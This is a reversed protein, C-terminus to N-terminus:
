WVENQKVSDGMTATASWADSSLARAEGLRREEPLNSLAYIMTRKGKVKWQGRDATPHLAPTYGCDKLRYVLEGKPYRGEAMMSYFDRDTARKDETEVFRSAYEKLMNITIAKPRVPAGNGMDGAIADLLDEMKDVDPNLGGVIMQRTGENMPPPAKADFGCLDRDRLFAAVHRFGDASLWDHLHKFYNPPISKDNSPVKSTAVFYRRSGENVYLGNDPYNTTICVFIHNTISYEPIGKENVYLGTSTTTIIPKLKNNLKYRSNGLDRAEEVVLVLSKKYPSFQSDLIVDPGIGTVNAGGLIYRLAEFITDKGIGEGGALVLAHNIKGGVNQVVYALTNLIHDHDIQDPYLYKVHDVWPGALSADGGSSDPVPAFTNYSVATTDTAWGSGEYFKGRIIQPEGPAWTMHNVGYREMVVQSALKIIPKGNKDVAGTDIPKLKANVGAAGKWFKRTRLHIFTSALPLYAIFDELKYDSGDELLWIQGGGDFTGIRLRGDKGRWVRTRDCRTDPDSPDEFLDYLDEGVYDDPEALIEAVTATGIKPNAFHLEFERTLKCDDLWKGIEARADSKSMGGETLRRVHSASWRARAIECEERLALRARQKIERVADDDRSGWPLVANAIDIVHGEFALAPRPSQILPETLIVAGEFVLREPSGVATDILSRELMQGAAGVVYWGLGALWLMDHIRKLTDPIATADNILVYIHEGESDRVGGTEPNSIGSSSSKRIVRAAGALKPAADAIALWAGGLAAVRDRASQPMGKTDVDFLIYGAMSKPFIVFDKTRAIVGAQMPEPLNRKTVVRSGDSVGDKLTGIAIAENSGLSNITSALVHVSPVPLRYAAGNSMRCQSGDIKIKGSADVKAVKTLIEGSKVFKTLEVSPQSDQKDDNSM